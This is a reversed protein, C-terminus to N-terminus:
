SARFFASLPLHQELELGLVDGPLVPIEQTLHSTNAGIPVVLIQVGDVGSTVFGPLEFREVQFSTVTGLRYRTGQRVAYVRADLWNNNRVYLEVPADWSVAKVVEDAQQAGERTQEVQQGFAAGGLLLTMLTTLGAIQLTRRSIASALPMTHTKVNM